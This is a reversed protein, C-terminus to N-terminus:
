GHFREDNDIDLVVKQGSTREGNGLAIQNNRHDVLQALFKLQHKSGLIPVGRIM